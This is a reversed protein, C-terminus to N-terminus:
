YRRWRRDRSERRRDPPYDRNRGGGREDHQYVDGRNGDRRNRESGGQRQERGHHGAGDQQHAPRQNWHAPNDMQWPSGPGGRLQQQQMGFQFSSALQQMQQMQVQWMNNMQPLPCFM